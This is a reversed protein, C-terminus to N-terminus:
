SIIIYHRKRSHLSVIRRYLISVTHQRTAVTTQPVISLLLASPFACVDIVASCILTTIWGFDMSPGATSVCDEVGLSPNDQWVTCPCPARRLPFFFLVMQDWQCGGGQIPPAGNGFILEPSDNTFFLRVVGDVSFDVTFIKTEDLKIVM